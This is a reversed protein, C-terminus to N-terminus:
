NENNSEEVFKFKEIIQDFSYPYFKPQNLNDLIKKGENIRNRLDENMEDMNALEYVDRTDLYNLLKMRVKSGLKKINAEQVAGGLRSVSLGYDIAPKQGKNFAKESLVIQGDTISIVNTSIYDTIDGGKTEVIPLITISAGNKYQCGRELLRSHTYFIDAPYADRGPTVGSMLSIERHSDAHRKLDDIIVLVDKGSKMFKEAMSLGVYPTLYLVTPLDDNTAALITTYNMAGRKFLEYYISKVEKKTKGIAIYLCIVNQGKQSVIADLCLQTKGTKKDGIILQRQGKGIPYILDIGVIGTRLPRCVKTRDMIPIQESEIDLKTMNSFKKGSIKDEGFM